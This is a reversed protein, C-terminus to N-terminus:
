TGAHQSVKNVGGMLVIFAPFGVFQNSDRSPLERGVMQLTMTPDTEVVRVPNVVAYHSWQHGWAIALFKHGVVHARAVLASYRYSEVYINVSGATKTWFRQRQQVIYVDVKSSKCPALARHAFEVAM